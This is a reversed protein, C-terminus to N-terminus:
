SLPKENIFVLAVSSQSAYLKKSEIRIISEILSVADTMEAWAMRGLHAAGTFAFLVIDSFRLQVIKEYFRNFRSFSM